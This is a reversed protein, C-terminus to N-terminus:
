DQERELIEIAKKCMAEDFMGIHCQQRSIGLQRALWTYNTNRAQWKSIREKHMKKQWMPDFLSHARFRLARLEANALIGLPKNNSDRHTGVYADCGRCLWMTGYSKGNYIEASDILEALKQCYNCLVQM